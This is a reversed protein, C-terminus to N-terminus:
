IRRCFLEVEHHWLCFECASSTKMDNNDENYPRWGCNRALFMMTKGDCKCKERLYATKLREMVPNAHDWVFERIKEIKYRLELLEDITTSLLPKTVSSLIKFGKQKTQGGLCILILGYVYKAEKHGKEAAKALHKLGKHERNQLFYYIFGKRYLAEPNGNKRCRKFFNSFTEHDRHWPFLPTEQLSLRRLVYGDDCIHRFPKSVLRLNRVESLSSAAICSSIEVLLDEPLSDLCIRTKWSKKISSSSSSLSSSVM